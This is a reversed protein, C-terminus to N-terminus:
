RRCGWLVRAGFGWRTSPFTREKLFFMCFPSRHFGAGSSNIEVRADSRVLFPLYLLTARVDAFCQGAITILDSLLEELNFDDHPPTPSLRPSWTDLTVSARQRLPGGRLFYHDCGVGPRRRASAPGVDPTEFGDARASNRRLHFFFFFVTSHGTSKKMGISIERKKPDVDEDKSAFQISRSGNLLVSHVATAGYYCM